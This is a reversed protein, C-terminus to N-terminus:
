LMTRLMPRRLLQIHGTRGKDCLLVHPGMVPQGEGPIGDLTDDSVGADYPKGIRANWRKLVDHVPGRPRKRQEANGVTESTRDVEARGVAFGPLIGKEGVHGIAADQRYRVQLEVRRALSRAIPLIM